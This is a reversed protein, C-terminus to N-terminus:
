GSSLFLVIALTLAISLLFFFLTAMNKASFKRNIPPRKKKKRSERELTWALAANEPVSLHRHATENGLQPLFGSPLDFLLNSGIHSLTSAPHSERKGFSGCEFRGNNQLLIFAIDVQPNVEGKM